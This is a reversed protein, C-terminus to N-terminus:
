DEATWELRVGDRDISKVRMGSIKDGVRLLRDGVDAVGGRANIFVSKVHLAQLEAPLEDPQLLKGEVGQPAMEEATETLDVKKFPDYALLDEVSMTPWKRLPNATPSVVRAGPQPSTAAIQALEAANAETGPSRCVNVYLVGTLLVTLLGILAWQRPTVSQLSSKQAISM